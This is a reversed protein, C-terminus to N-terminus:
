FRSKEEWKPDFGSGDAAIRKMDNYCESLLVPPVKSLVIKTQSWVSNNANGATSVFYLEKLAAPIDSEPLYSGTFEIVSQMNLSTFNKRYVYFCGGDEAEGRVYGLKVARGRLKFTSILYGVFDKVDTEKVKEPPLEYVERNCQEFLPTVDYDQFHKTWADALEKSVNCSHALKVIADAAIDVAEDQENTLSGDELPRFVGILKEPVEREEKAPEFAVWALRVCLRGVIPHKALYERWDEFKWQRQTCLAEYLRETQRKVVEKVVKKADTFEKKAAKALEPDDNKGPEPLAKITKSEGKATVVPELQDNLSVVFQRAGYDLELTCRDSIPKGNEDVPREFGADPVTRDALEDLTWGRQEAVSNVFTSALEKISKTRFRNAISLLTQLALPHSIQSLVEILAKCQAARNGFWKRIYQEAIKVCDADGAASVIALMGKQEIASYLCTGMYHDYQAKFINSKDNKHADLFWKYTSYQAWQRDADAQAKETADEHTVTATDRAVWAQLVFKAFRAADVPACMQLYRKLIPGCSPSKQQISQVIWWKTINSDIEAGTDQWHLVPLNDLPLWESGTPLKKALGTKAEQLLKDRDLFENVDAKLRDLAQIIVGRTAEGKEKIFAKKLPEIASNDGIRGLWEAAASRVNAKGDSLSGIIKEVKDPVTNLADQALRRDSKSESLAQDWILPRFRAPLTPFMALVKYATSRNGDYISGTTTSLARELLEPREAFAPWIAEPEWDCFNSWANTLLYTSTVLGPKLSPITAAAADFERLGFANGCRERYPELINNTSLWLRETTGYTHCNLFRLFYMFRVVHSLTVGPPTLHEGMVATFTHSWRQVKASLPFVNSNDKGEVFKVIQDIESQTLPVPKEPQQLHPIQKRKEDYMKCQEEFFKLAVKYGDEMYNKFQSRVEAPLDRPELDISIEGIKLPEESAVSKPAALYKEVTQRVRDAKEGALHSQLTDICEEGYLRWLLAIAENRESAGGQKLTKEIHPRYFEKNANLLPMVQERVTKSNGTAYTVLVEPMAKFDFQLEALSELAYKREEAEAAMLFSKVTNSHKELHEKLGSFSKSVNGANVSYRYSRFLAQWRQSLALKVLTDEPLGGAVLIKELETITWQAPAQPNKTKLHSYCACVETLLIMLWDPPGAGLIGRYGGHDHSAAELLRSYRLWVEAPAKHQAHFVRQRNIVAENQVSYIKPGYSMKEAAIVNGRLKLLCQEDSDDVIFRLLDAALPPDVQAVPELAKSLAEILDNSLGLPNEVAQTGNKQGLQLIKKFFDM